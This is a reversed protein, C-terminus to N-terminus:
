AENEFVVKVTTGKGVESEFALRARHLRAIEEALALGLGIGGQKRSRAKDVRYFPQTLQPLASEPIGGGWDTVSITNNQALVEIARGQESAKGANDILNLLLACLLDLDMSLTDMQNRITLSLGRNKLQTQCAAEVMAFLESTKQEKLAIEGSQKLVILHMLKQSLKEVRTCDADIQMLAQEREEEEMRTVLLTQANGKISTMPTKLEHTLASMFLTRRAAEEKLEEVRREVADAMSNFDEALEGIEDQEAIRIRRDYVGAAILSTNEKLTKIPKLLKRVLLLEVLGAIFMIAFSIWSFRYAMETIDAYISTVDQMMYLSYITGQIAIQSGVMLMSKGAVDAIIYQRKGEALPLYDAPEICTANYISDTGANLVINEDALQAVFYRALSRATAAGTEAKIEEAMANMWYAANTKQASVTSNIAYNLNSRGAGVLLFLNCISVAAAVMIVAVLSVKIWLKM